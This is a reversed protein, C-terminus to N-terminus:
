NGGRVGEQVVLHQGRQQATQQQRPQHGQADIAAILLQQDAQPLGVDQPETPHLAAHVHLAQRHLHTRASM